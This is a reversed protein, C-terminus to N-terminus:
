FQGRPSIVHAETSLLLCDSLLLDFVHVPVKPCFLLCLQRIEVKVFVSRRPVGIDILEVDYWAVKQVSPTM